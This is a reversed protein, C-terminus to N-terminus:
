KVTTIAFSQSNQQWELTVTESPSPFDTAECNTTPALANPGDEYVM